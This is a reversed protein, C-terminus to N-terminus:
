IRLTRLRLYIHCHPSDDDPPHWPVHASSEADGTGTSLLGYPAAFTIADQWTSHSRERGAAPAGAGPLYIADADHEDGLPEGVLDSKLHRANEVSKEHRKGQQGDELSHVFWFHVHPHADHRRQEQPSAAAHLHPSALQSVNFGLLVLFTICRRFM